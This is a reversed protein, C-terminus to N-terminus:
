IDRVCRLSLAFHKHGSMQSNVGTSSLFLHFALHADTESLSWYRATSGQGTLNDRMHVGSFTGGWRNLYLNVLNTDRQFDDDGTGGLAIDLAEFDERTPVRWPAPCLIEKFRAVACWSFLDGKQGPNSRCDSKYNGSFRNGEFFSFGGEYTTKESCNSAQVADSWIQNGVIWTQDTAFSVTGLSNGWGPTGTDCRRQGFGTQVM